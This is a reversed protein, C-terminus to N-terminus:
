VKVQQVWKYISNLCLPEDCEILLQTTFLVNNDFPIIAVM